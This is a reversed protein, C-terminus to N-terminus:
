KSLFYLVRCTAVTGSRGYKKKTKVQQEVPTERDKENDTVDSKFSKALKEGGGTEGERRM